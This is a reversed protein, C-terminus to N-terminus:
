FGLVEILRQGFLKEGHASWHNGDSWFLKKCSTLDSAINFNVLHIQSAYKLRSKLKTDHIKDNIVGDLKGFTSAKEPNLTFRHDCGVKLMFKESIHPEIRPGLWIVNVYESLKLLYNHVSSLNSYNTKMRTLQQHEPRALFSKHTVEKGYEDLLLTRGTQEYLVREFVHRNKEVFSLFREYQCFPAPNHPRCYGQTVGVIFNAKSVSTLAGFLDIAHSDGIVAIGPGNKKLCKLIRKEIIEDLNQVNFKCVNNDQQLNPNAKADSILRYMKSANPKASQLWLKEKGNTLHGFLGLGMIAITIGLSAFIVQRQSEALPRQQRRFPTEVYKWSAYALLLTLGSLLAMFSPNPPLLSNIRAFAFLPLHWLYASYSILGIGVIARISLLKSVFTRNGGYLVILCTGLVPVMTYISPYPITKDFSFISTFILILGFSSLANSHRQVRDMQLFACISGALLEWARSAILYFNFHPAQRWGWETILLSIIATIIILLFVRRAGLRWLMILALPFLLYYQEEVGLSWTHLLPKEDVTTEAFYRHKFSFLINSAFISVAFLTQSFDKFQAPLMWIWAFPICCIIVFFLAPLIRRARRIYFKKLSFTNSNLERILIGTILYGSIVFFIDVGVFGGNFFSFGAHFLIVPVVAISRLGDIETRYQM